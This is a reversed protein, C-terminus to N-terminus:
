TKTQTLRSSCAFQVYGFHSTLDSDVMSPGSDPLSIVTMWSLQRDPVTAIM